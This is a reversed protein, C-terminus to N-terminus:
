AASHGAKDGCGRGPGMKGTLEFFFLAMILKKGRVWGEGEGWGGTFFVGKLFVSRM